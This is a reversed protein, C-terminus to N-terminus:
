RDEIMVAGHLDSGAEGVTDAAIDGDVVDEIGLGDLLEGFGNARMQFVSRLDVAEHAGETTAGLPGSRYRNEHEMRGTARGNRVFRQEFPQGGVGRHESELPDLTGKGLSGLRVKRQQARDLTVARIHQAAPGETTGEGVRDGFSKTVGEFHIM